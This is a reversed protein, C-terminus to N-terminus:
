GQRYPHVHQHLLLLIKGFHIVNSQLPHQLVQECSKHAFLSRCAVQFCVGQEALQEIFLVLEATQFM